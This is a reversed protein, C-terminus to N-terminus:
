LSRGFDQLFKDMGYPHLVIVNEAYKGRLAVHESDPGLLKGFALQLLFSGQYM